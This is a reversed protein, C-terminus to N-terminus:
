FTRKITTNVQDEEFEDDGPLLQDLPLYYQEYTKIVRNDPDYTYTRFSPNVGPTGWILPTISPAIFAVGRPEQDEHDMFLRFSDTHFHGYFHAVIQFAFSFTTTCSFTFLIM